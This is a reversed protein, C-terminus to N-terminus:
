ELIESFRRQELYLHHWNVLFLLVFALIYYASFSIKWVILCRRSIWLIKGSLLYVIPASCSMRIIVLFFTYIITKLEKKIGSVNAMFRGLFVVLIAVVNVLVGHNWSCRLCRDSQDRGCGSDWTCGIDVVNNTTSLISVTMWTSISCLWETNCRPPIKHKRASSFSSSQEFRKWDASRIGASDVM